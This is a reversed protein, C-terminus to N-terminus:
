FKSPVILIIEDTNAARIKMPRMLTEWQFQFQKSDILSLLSKLLSGDYNVTIESHNDLSLEHPFSAEHQGPVFTSLSSETMTVIKNKDACVLLRSLQTVLYKKDLWATEFGIRTPLAAEYPPYTGNIVHIKANGILVFSSCAEDDNYCITILENRSLRWLDLMKRLDKAQVLLKLEQDATVDHIPLSNSYLTIADSATLTLKGDKYNGDGYTYEFYVANCYYRTDDDEAIALCKKLAALFPERRMTLTIIAM